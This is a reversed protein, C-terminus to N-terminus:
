GKLRAWADLAAVLDPFESRLLEINEMGKGECPNCCGGRGKECRLGCDQPQRPPALVDIHGWLEAEKQPIVTLLGDDLSSVMSARAEINMSHSSEADVSASGVPPQDEAADREVHHLVEQLPQCRPVTLSRNQEDRFCPLGDLGGRVLVRPQNPTNM